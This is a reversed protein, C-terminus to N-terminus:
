TVVSVNRAQLKGRYTEISLEVVTMPQLAFNQALDAFRVYVSQGDSM